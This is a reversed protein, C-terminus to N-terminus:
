GGVGPSLFQSWNSTATSPKVYKQSNLYQRASAKIDVQMAAPLNNLMAKNNKAWLKYADGANTPINKASQPSQKADIYTGVATDLQNQFDAAAAAGYTDAIRQM